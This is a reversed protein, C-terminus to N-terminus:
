KYCKNTSKSLIEYDFTEEHSDRPCTYDRKLGMTKKFFRRAGANNKLVTLILKEMKNHTALLELTGMLTRGLGQGRNSEEVQLEYVYLVEHGYDNDFRFHSFALPIGSNSETAILFWAADEFMEKEKAEPDWGWSVGEYLSKMNRTMLDMLWAKTKSKPDPAPLAVLHFTHGNVQRERHSKPLSELPDKQRNAREVNSVMNKPM